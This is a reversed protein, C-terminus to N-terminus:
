FLSLNIEKVALICEPRDITPSNVLKSVPYAEMLEAPYPRLLRQLIEQESATPDLWRRCDEKSLIVPMRNHIAALLENPETTIITCSFITNGEKSSWTEWLGAFSFPAQTKLRVYFPTKNSAGKEWEYFGDALVLCRQKKFAMKFAPKQAISEARANILRNGISEDKAWSPILGWRYLFMKNPAKNTVVSVNHSPAINYSPRFDSPIEVLGFEEALVDGCAANTFRGCM